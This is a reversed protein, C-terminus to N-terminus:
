GKLEEIIDSIVVYALFVGGIIIIIAAVTLVVCMLIMLYTKM